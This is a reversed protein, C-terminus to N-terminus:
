ENGYVYLKNKWLNHLLISALQKSRYENFSCLVCTNSYSITDGNFVYENTHVSSTAVGEGDKSLWVIIKYNGYSWKHALKGDMFECWGNYIFKNADEIFWSWVKDQYDKNKVRNYLKKTQKYKIILAIINVLMCIFCLALIIKLIILVM